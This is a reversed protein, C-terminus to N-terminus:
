ISLGGLGSVGGGIGPDAFATTSLGLAMALVLFLTLLRKKM